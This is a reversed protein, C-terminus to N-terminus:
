IVSWTLAAIDADVADADSLPTATITGSLSTTTQQTGGGKNLTVTFSFSGNTGAPTGVAGVTAATFDSVTIDGEAVTIDTAAMGTLTNIQSVLWTKVEAETNATAQAVTYIGGEILGKAASIDANFDQPTANIGNSAASNGGSNVARITINYQTGIVLANSGAASTETITQPSTQPTGGSPITKCNTGDTSYEYSTIAAGGNSTPATWALEIGGQTM